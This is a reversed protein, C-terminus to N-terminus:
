VVLEAPPRHNHMSGYTDGPIWYLNWTTHGALESACTPIQLYIM